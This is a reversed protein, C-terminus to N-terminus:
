PRKKRDEHREKVDLSPISHPRTSKQQVQTTIGRATQRNSRAPYHPPPQTTDRVLIITCYISSSPRTPHLVTTYLTTSRNHRIPADGTYMHHHFQPQHQTPLDSRPKPLTRPIYQSSIGHAEHPSAVCFFPRWYQPHRQDPNDAADIQATPCTPM